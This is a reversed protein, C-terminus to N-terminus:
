WSAWVILLVIVTSIAIAVVFIVFRKIEKQLSTERNKTETTLKAIKGIMTKDGVEVVVGKGQGNTILSTMFAINKSETYIKDTCNVSSEIAESEGTLMSKDFKLGHSEILRIDAPVKYGYSLLVLDGVVLDEVFFFLINFISDVKYAFIVKNGEAFIKQEIGNRIVQASSPMMNKISNMVKNSSWDQFASFAAQLLIVIILIIGLGLNTPDPPNGIPKWALICIVAAIWLVGCFGTFLYSFLQMFISKKEQKLLNKGNKLLLSAAADSTLGNTLSVSFRKSIEEFSIKHYDNQYLDELQKSNAKEKLEIESASVKM